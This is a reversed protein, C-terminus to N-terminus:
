RRPGGARSTGAAGLLDQSALVDGVEDVMRGRGAAPLVWPRAPRHEAVASGSLKRPRASRVGGVVSASASSSRKRPGTRRARSRRRRRRGARRPWRVVAPRVWRARRLAQHGRRVLPLEVTSSSVSRSAAMSASRGSNSRRAADGAAVSSSRRAKLIALPERLSSPAWILEVSGAVVPDRHEFAVPHQGVVRQEVVRHGEVDADGPDVRVAVVVHAFLEAILAAGPDREGFEGGAGREVGLAQLDGDVRDVQTGALGVDVGPLDARLAPPRSVLGDPQLAGVRHGAHGRQPLVPMASTLWCRGTTSIVRTDASTRRSSAVILSRRSSRLCSGNVTTVAASM